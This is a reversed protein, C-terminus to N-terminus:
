PLYQSVTNEDDSEEDREGSNMVFKLVRENRAMEEEDWTEEDDTDTLNNLLDELEALKKELAALKALRKELAYKRKNKMSRDLQRKSHTSIFIDSHKTAAAVGADLWRIVLVEDDLRTEVRM